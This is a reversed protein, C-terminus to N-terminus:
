LRVTNTNSEKQVPGQHRHISKRGAEGLLVDENKDKREPTGDQQSFKDIYQRYYGALGRFEEIDKIKKPTPWELIAKLKEEQM